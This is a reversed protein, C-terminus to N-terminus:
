IIEADEQEVKLKKEPDVRVLLKDVRHRMVTKVTIKVYEYDFTDGPKPYGGIMEVAWGGVTANNDEFEDEDLEMEDLFDYINMDGDIVYTNEGLEEIEEEITDSEDWIDGVLEELVDEMTIVGMTGGYEDTVVVMHCQEKQMKDLVQPLLMTKHVFTAPMVASRVDLHEGRALLKLAHNLHLIGIINDITDEYVPIRTYLSETITKIITAYDDDIDITVLDIRHTLVEFAEVEDFEISNQFLESSSEDLVGEDEATELMIELDDETVSPGEPVQKQWLKSVLKLFLLVLWVAPYLLIMLIRLPLATIVSFSEAAASAVVKPLIEGFTLILLTMVVTAVWEYGAPLLHMVILTAISSAAINVLNNGILITSLAQDYQEKNKVALRRCLTNKDATGSKLRTLSASAYSLETGSFFASCCILLVIAVYNLWEM